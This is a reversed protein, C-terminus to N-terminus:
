EQQTPPSVLVDPDLDRSEALLSPILTNSVVEVWFRLSNPTHIEESIYQKVDIQIRHSVEYERKISWCKM